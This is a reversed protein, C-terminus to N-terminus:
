ATLDTGPEGLDIRVVNLRYYLEARFEGTELLPLIPRSTTSVIQVRAGPDSQEMWTLLRSQQEANLGGIESVILTGRAPLPTDTDEHFRRIPAELYPLTSVLMADVASAAGALLFNHRGYSIAAWEAVFQSPVFEPLIQEAIEQSRRSQSARM